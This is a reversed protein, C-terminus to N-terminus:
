VINYISQLPSLTIVDGSDPLWVSGDCDGEDPDDCVCTLLDGGEVGGTESTHTSNYIVLNFINFIVLFNINFTLM